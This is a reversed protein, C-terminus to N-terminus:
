ILSLEQKSIEQISFKDNFSSKINPLSEIDYKRNFCDNCIFKVNDFGELMERCVPMDSVLTPIGYYAIECMMVGQADLKTPMLAYKYNNLLQPIDKQYIFFNFVEVNPPQINHKFYNGEGYIHFTYEPNNLAFDIILDVAYKAGDLPRISIFDAKIIDNRHYGCQIIHVSIPNNIIHIKFKALQSQSYNLSKCFASYMWNSVFILDLKKHSNLYNLLKRMLPLKFYDYIILLKRKRKGKKDYNYPKPYYLKADLVEHGHFFLIIYKIYKLMNFIFMMGNRINPAHIMVINNKTLKLLKKGESKTVVKVEDFIYNAKTSFSIVIVDCTNQYAKVRSHVFSMAYLNKESPYDQCLIFIKM